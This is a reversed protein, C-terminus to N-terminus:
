DTKQELLWDELIVQEVFPARLLAADSSILRSLWPRRRTIRSFARLGLASLSRGSLQMQVDISLRNFTAPVINPEPGVHIVTEIGASLTKDIIDWMKQPHDIWDDLHNRSNHDDYSIDGTVGSVIPPKPVTFGGPVKEMLVWARNSINKQRCIPTHLPPWQHPNKRLHTSDPLVGKMREKFRDLTAGQGMLLVTNPSLISSVAVTGRGENSIELCLKEIAAYSLAPGRSFLVGLQVGHALKAADKALVLLPTLAAEMSFVGGAVLATVEGLSYGFALRADAYPIGFVEQLIDLQALEVGVIMGIDAAYTQLSSEVRQRVREVLDLPQRTAQTCIESAQRLRKEVFPGYRAHALLEPSKGLNTVNYGRFSFAALKIRGKLSNEM